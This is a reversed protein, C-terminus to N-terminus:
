RIKDVRYEIRQVRYEVCKICQVIQGRDACILYLQFIYNLKVKM